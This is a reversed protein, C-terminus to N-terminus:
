ESNKSQTLTLATLMGTLIAALITLSHYLSADTRAQQNEGQAITTDFDFIIPPPQTTEDSSSGCSDIIAPCAESGLSAHHELWSEMATIITEREQTLQFYDTPSLKYNLKMQHPSSSTSVIEIQEYHDNIPASELNEYALTIFNSCDPIPTNFQTMMTLHKFEAKSVYLETLLFYMLGAMGASILFLSFRKSFDVLAM